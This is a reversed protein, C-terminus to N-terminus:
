RAGSAKGPNAPLTACNKGTQRQDRLCQYFARMFPSAPQPKSVDLAHDLAGQDLDSQEQVVVLGDILATLGAIDSQRLTRETELDTQLQTIQKAQSEITNLGAKVAVGMLALLILSAFIAIAGARGGVLGMIWKGATTIM